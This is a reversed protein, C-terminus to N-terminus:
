FNDGADGGAQEGRGAGGRGGVGRLAGGGAQERQEGLAGRHAEGGLQQGAEGDGQQEEGAGGECWRVWLGAAERQEGAQAGRQPEDAQRVHPEVGAQVAEVDRHGGRGERDHEHVAAGHVVAAPREGEARREADRDGDFVVGQEDRDQQAEVVEGAEREGAAARGAALQEREREQRHRQEGRQGHEGQPRPQPGVRDAAEEVVGLEVAQV